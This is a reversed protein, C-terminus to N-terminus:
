SWISSTLGDVVEGAPIDDDGDDADDASDADEANDIRKGTDGSLVVPPFWEMQKVSAIVLMEDDIPWALSIIM